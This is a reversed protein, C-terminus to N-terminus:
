EHDRDFDRDRSDVDKGSNDIEPPNNEKDNNSERLDASVELKYSRGADDTYEGSVSIRSMLPKIAGKYNQMSFGEKQRTEFRVFSLHRDSSLEDIDRERWQVTESSIACSENSGCNNSSSDVFM